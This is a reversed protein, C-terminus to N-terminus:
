GLSLQHEAQVVEVLRQRTGELVVQLPHRGAEGDGGAVVPEGRRVRRPSGPTPGPTGVRSPRTRRYASTPHRTRGCTRARRGPRAARPGPTWRSRNSSRPWSGLGRGSVLGALLRPLCPLRLLRRLRASSEAATAAILAACSSWACPACAAVAQVRQRSEGLHDVAAVPDDALRRHDHRQPLEVACPSERRVLDAVHDFILEAGVLGTQARVPSQQQLPEPDDVHGALDDAHATDAGPGEHHQQLAASVPSGSKRCTLSAVRDTNSSWSGFLRNSVGPCRTTSPWRSICDAESM